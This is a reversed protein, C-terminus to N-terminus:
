NLSETFHLRQSRQRVHTTEPFISRVHCRRAPLIDYSGGGRLVRIKETSTSPRKSTSAKSVGYRENLRWTNVIPSHVHPWKKWFSGYRKLPGNSPPTYCLDLSFGQEKLPKGGSVEQVGKESPSLRGLRYVQQSRELHIRRSPCSWPTMEVSHIRRRRHRSSM